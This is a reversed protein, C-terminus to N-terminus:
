DCGEERYSRDLTAMEARQQSAKRENGTAGNMVIKGKLQRCLADHDGSKGQWYACASLTMLLVIMGIKRLMASGGKM